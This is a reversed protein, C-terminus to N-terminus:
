KDENNWPPNGCSNWSRWDCNRSERFRFSISGDANNGFKKAYRSLRAEDVGRLIIIVKRLHPFINYAGSFIMCIRKFVRKDVIQGERQPFEIDAVVLETYVMMSPHVNSPFIVFEQDFPGNHPMFVFRLRRLNPTRELSHKISYLTIGYTEPHSVITAEELVSSHTLLIQLSATDRRSISVGTLQPVLPLLRSAANESNECVIQISQICENRLRTPQRLLSTFSSEREQLLLLILAIAQHSSELGIHHYPLHGVWLYFSRCVLILSLFETSKRRKSIDSASMEVIERMIDLPFSRFPIIMRLGMWRIFRNRLYRSTRLLTQRTYYLTVEWFSMEPLMITSYKPDALVFVWEVRRLMWLMFSIMFISAWLRPFLKFLLLRLLLLQSTVFTFATILITLPGPTYVNVM